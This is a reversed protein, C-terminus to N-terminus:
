IHVCSLPLADVARRMENPGTNTSDFFLQPDTALRFPSTPNSRDGVERPIKHPQAQLVGSYLWGLLDGVGSLEFVARPLLYLLRTWRLLIRFAVFM